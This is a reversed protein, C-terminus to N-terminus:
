KTEHLQIWTKVYFQLSCYIFLYGHQVKLILILLIGQNSGRGLLYHLFLEM